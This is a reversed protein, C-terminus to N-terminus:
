QSKVFITSLFQYIKGVDCSRKKADGELIEDAMCSLMLGNRTVDDHFREPACKMVNLIIVIM